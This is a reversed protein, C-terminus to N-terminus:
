HSQAHENRAMWWLVAGCTAALVVLGIGQHALEGVGAGRAELAVLLANRVVNGLMVLLAVGPLRKLLVGDRMSRWAALSLACFYGFWALQVGSCPADVIVLRGDVTMAAGSREAAFGAAQLLWTSAEATLVRLPYGAYFQLSAIVPLALLALGALPLRPVGAPLWAALGCSLALAALLAAALPPLWWLAATAAFTLAASAAFWGPRPADRLARGHRLLVLGLVALAAIGLPDDSGDAMRAAAWQAHPWLAVAQLALWGGAPLRQLGRPGALSLTHMTSM